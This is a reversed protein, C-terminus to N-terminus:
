GQARTIRIDACDRFVETRANGGCQDLTCGGMCQGTAPNRRAAYSSGCEASSCSDVCSNATRYTRCPLALILSSSHSQCTVHHDPLVCCCTLSM